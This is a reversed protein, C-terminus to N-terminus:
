FCAGKGSLVSRGGTSYHAALSLALARRRVVVVVVEFVFGHDTLGIGFLYRALIRDCVYSSNFNPILYLSINWWFLNLSSISSTQSDTILNHLIRPLINRRGKTIRKNTLSNRSFLVRGGCFLFFDVGFHKRVSVNLLFQILIICSHISIQPINSLTVLLALHAFQFSLTLFFQSSNFHISTRRFSLLLWWHLSSVYALM